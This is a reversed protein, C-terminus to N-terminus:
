SVIWTRFFLGHRRYHDHLFVGVEVRGDSRRWFFHRSRFWCSTLKGVAVVGGGIGGRPVFLFVCVWCPPRRGVRDKGNFSGSSEARGGWAFRERLLANLGGTPSAMNNNNHHNSNSNGISSALFSGHPPSAAMHSGTVFSNPPSAMFGGGGIVYGGTPPPSAMHHSGPAAAAVAANGMGNSSAAMMLGGSTPPSAFYGISSSAMNNYSTMNGTSATMNGNSLGNSGLTDPPPTESPTLGSLYHSGRRSRRHLLPRLRLSSAPLPTPPPATAPLVLM